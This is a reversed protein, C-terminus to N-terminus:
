GAQAPAFPRSGHARAGYEEPLGGPLATLLSRYGDQDNALLYAPM